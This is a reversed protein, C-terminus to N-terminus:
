NEEFKLIRWAGDSTRCTEGAYLNVGDYSERSAEFSRCLQGKRKYESLATIAGRAGSDTNAWSIGTDPLAELDASSVANRITTEDSIQLPDSAAAPDAPIAATTITDDVAAEIDPAKSACAVLVAGAVIALIARACIRLGPWAVRGCAQAERSL